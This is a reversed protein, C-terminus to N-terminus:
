RSEGKQPSSVPSRRAGRARLQADLREIRDLLNLAVAAGALNVGLEVLLRRALRVRTVHDPAFRWRGPRSGRPELIGEHVMACVVETSLGCARCLQALSIEREEGLVTGTTVAVIAHRM